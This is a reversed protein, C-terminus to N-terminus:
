FNPALRDLVEIRRIRRVKDEEEGSSSSTQSDIKFRSVCDDDEIAIPIRLVIQLSHSTGMADSLLGM